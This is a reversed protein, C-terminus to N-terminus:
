NSSVQEIELDIPKINNKEENSVIKPKKATDKTNEEIDVYSEFSDERKLPLAM